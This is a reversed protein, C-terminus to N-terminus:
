LHGATEIQAHHITELEKTLHNFASNRFPFVVLRGCTPCEDPVEVTANIQQQDKQYHLKLQM